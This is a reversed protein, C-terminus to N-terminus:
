LPEEDASDEVDVAEDMAAEDEAGELHVGEAAVDSSALSDDIVLREPDEDELLYDEEECSDAVAPSSPAPFEADLDAMAEEFSTALAAVEPKGPSGPATAFGGHGEDDVPIPSPASASMSMDMSRPPSEAAQQLGGFTVSSPLEGGEMSMQAVACAKALTRRVEEPSLGLKLLTVEAATFDVSSLAVAPAGVDESQVASWRDMAATIGAADCQVGANRVSVAPLSPRVRVKHPTPRLLAVYLVGEWTCKDAM